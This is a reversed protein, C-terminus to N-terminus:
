THTSRIGAHSSFSGRGNSQFPGASRGKVRNESSLGQIPRDDIVQLVRSASMSVLDGDPIRVCRQGKALQPIADRPKGLDQRGLGLGSIQDADQQRCTRHKGDRHERAQRCSARKDCEIRVIRRVPQILHQLIRPWRQDDCSFIAERRRSLRAGVSRTM